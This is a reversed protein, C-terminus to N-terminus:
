RVQNNQGDIAWIYVQPKGQWCGLSKRQKETANGTEQIKRGTQKKNCLPTYIHTPPTPPSISECWESFPYVLSKQKQVFSQLDLFIKIREKYKIPLRPASSQTPFEKRSLLKFANSQEKHAEVRATSLVLLAENEQGKFTPQRKWFKKKIRSKQFKVIIQM